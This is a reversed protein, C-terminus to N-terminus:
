LAQLRNSIRRSVQSAKASPPPRAFFRSAFSAILWQLVRNPSITRNRPGIIQFAQLQARSIKGEDRGPEFYLVILATRGPPHSVARSPRRTAQGRAWRGANYGGMVAKAKGKGARTQSVPPVLTRKASTLSDPARSLSM